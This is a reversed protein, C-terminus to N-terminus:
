KAVEGTLELQPLADFSGDKGDHFVIQINIVGEDTLYDKINDTIMLEKTDIEEYNGTDINLLGIKYLQNKVGSVTLTKWDVKEESLEVPLKWTQTYEMGEYYYEEYQNGMVYPGGGIENATIHMEFMPSDVTIEGEFITKVEVPQVIMTLASQSTKIDELTLPIIKTDAYGVIVPKLSLGMNESYFSLVSDKRIQMLDDNNGTGFHQFPLRPRLQSSKLTENIDVTEGPGLDKIAIFDNGSWIAVDKLEFPFENVISGSLVGKDVFLDMKMEGIGDVRSAGTITAVNWYGVNRFNMKSGSADQELIARKHAMSGASGFISGTLSTSMTTHNQSTFTFDGSQNSLISEAYYGRLNGDEEVSLVATHQIQSRGIRDKAGYGFIAISTVVAIVPIIWWASERKDKRKLYFYLVPIILVLYLIIIGFILPASVKFSPFLENTDGITYQLSDYPNSYYNFSTQTMISAETMLGNWLTTMGESKALPENGLSFATQLIMGQGVKKYAILADKDLSLLSNAGDNLTAAYGTVSGEFVDTKAWDNLTLPNIEIEENLKLPLLSSFVGAEGEINDSSGFIIVGGNNVWELLAEQKEKPLDVLAYEDIIMYDVPDWGIAEEPFNTAGVKAADVLQLNLGNVLQVDKLAVLRDVNKTFTVAINEDYYMTATIHQAGTHAIEKGKRWGNEYFYISKSNPSGYMGTTAEMNQVFYTITKTEGTGIELPFARGMGQEYSEMVDIVLDGSFPTGTNEVTVSIPGGKEYKAKGDIGAVISVKLEPSALATVEPNCLFVLSLALLFGMVKKIMM